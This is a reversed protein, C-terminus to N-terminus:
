KIGRSTNYKGSKMKWYKKCSFYEIDLQKINSFFEKVSLRNAARKYNSYLIVKSLKINLFELNIKMWKLGKIMLSCALIEAETSSTSVLKQKKTKFLIANKNIKKIYGSVSLRMLPTLFAEVEYKEATKPYKLGLFKTNLLSKIYKKAANLHSVLPKSSQYALMNTQFSIYPRCVISIYTLSGVLSQYKRKLELPKSEM